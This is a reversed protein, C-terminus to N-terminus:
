YDEFNTIKGESYVQNIDMNQRKLNLSSDGILVRESQSEDIM